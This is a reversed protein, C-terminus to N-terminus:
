CNLLTHTLKEMDTKDNYVNPSVRIADGRYSVFINNKTLASKVEDMKHHAGLRIGFLNAARFEADDIIFGAETLKKVSEETISKCYNQIHEPKWENLARLAALMMPVLIFNSQEGVGYRLAKPQYDDSYNVLNAFDDSENRNIWNQEIPSGDDFAAGYYALGISYPGMLSKYGAVILADPQIEEVDFSLAGVSQTGDIVLLAGVENTRKRIDILNFLTGDAWHINAMAVLRTRSNITNLIAENWRKGRDQMGDPASVTIIEANSKSAVERWPYVNSPFQEGVVVINDGSELVLNKAVNALGYSVSPIIAIRDSDDTNILKAFEQRLAKTESFFDDGTVLNPKQKRLVGAIGAEEVQKMLPSMFACNLYTINEDLSFLHKQSQM